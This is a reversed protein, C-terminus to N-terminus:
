QSWGRFDSHQTPVESCIWFRIELAQGSDTGWLAPRMDFQTMLDQHLHRVFSHAFVLVKPCSLAM